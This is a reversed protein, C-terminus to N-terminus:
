TRQKSLRSVSRELNTRASAEFMDRFCVTRYIKGRSLFMNLIGARAKRYEPEPVWDYEKRIRKEYLDFEEFSRGFISLDIDALLEADPDQPPENHKTAIVLDSIRSAVNEAIGHKTLSRRALLASKEENDLAGTDYVADHFWIAIEIEDPKEALSRALDLQFLCDEVHSMNHYARHPEAHLRVLKEWIESAGSGAGIGVWLNGWRERLPNM